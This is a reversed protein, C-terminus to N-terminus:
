AAKLEEIVAFLIDKFIKYLRLDKRIIDLKKYKFYISENIEALKNMCIERQELDYVQSNKKMKYLKGQWRYVRELQRNLQKKLIKIEHRRPTIDKKYISDILGRIIEESGDTDQMKYQYIFNTDGDNLTLVIYDNSQGLEINELYIQQAINISETVKKLINSLEKGNLM